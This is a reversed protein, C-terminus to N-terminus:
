SAIWDQSAQYENHIGFQDWAWLLGRAKVVHISPNYAHAMINALKMQGKLEANVINYLKSILSSQPIIHVGSEFIKMLVNLLEYYKKYVIFSCVNHKSLM